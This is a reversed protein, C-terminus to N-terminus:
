QTINGSNECVERMVTTYNCLRLLYPEAPLKGAQGKFYSFAEEPKYIESFFLTMDFLAEKKLDLRADIGQEEVQVGYAVVAELEKLGSLTDQM